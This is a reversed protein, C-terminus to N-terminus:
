MVYKFMLLINPKVYKKKATDESRNFVRWGWTKKRRQLQCSRLLRRSSFRLDARRWWSGCCSCFSRCVSAALYRHLLRLMFCVLFRDWYSVARDLFCGFISPYESNLSKSFCCIQCTFDFSWLDSFWSSINSKEGKVEQTQTRIQLTQAKYLPRLTLVSPTM